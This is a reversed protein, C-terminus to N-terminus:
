RIRDAGYMTTQFSVNRWYFRELHALYEDNYLTPTIMIDQATIIKDDLEEDPSIKKRKISQLVMQGKDADL